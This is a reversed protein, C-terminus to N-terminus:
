VLGFSEVNRASYGNHRSCCTQPPSLRSLKSRACGIYILASVREDRASYKFHFVIKKKLSDGEIDYSHNRLELSQFHSLSFNVYILFFVFFIKSSVFKKLNRTGIKM